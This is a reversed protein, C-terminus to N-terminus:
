ALFRFRTKRRFIVKHETDFTREKFIKARTKSFHYSKGKLEFQEDTLMWELKYNGDKDVYSIPVNWKYGLSSEPKDIEKGFHMFREQDIKITDESQSVTLVPHGCQRVWGDFTENFSMGNPLGWDLISIFDGNGLHRYSGTIDARDM